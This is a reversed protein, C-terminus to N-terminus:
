WSIKSVYIYYEISHEREETLTATAVTCSLTYISTRSNKCCDTGSYDSDAVCSQILRIHHCKSSIKLSEVITVLKEKTNLVVRLKEM